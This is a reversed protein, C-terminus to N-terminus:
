AKVSSFLSHHSAEQITCLDTDTHSNKYHMVQISKTV